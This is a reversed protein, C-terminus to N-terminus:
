QVGVVTQLEQPLLSHTYHWPTAEPLFLAGPVEPVSVVCVCMNTISGERM